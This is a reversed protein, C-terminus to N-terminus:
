ADQEAGENQESFKESLRKMFAVVATLIEKAESQSYSRVIHMTPNRWVIKVIQLDGAVERFYAEDQKWDITKTKHKETIQREIQTLYSEWSPAYPIELAYAFVKLGHEMIRMLHFVTATGQDYALCKGASELEEIASPFSAFLADDLSEWPELYQAYESSIRMVLSEMNAVIVRRLVDFDEGHKKYTYGPKKSDKLMESAMEAATELSIERCRDGLRKFNLHAKRQAVAPMPKADASTMKEAFRTLTEILDLWRPTDFEQMIDWLSGHGYPIPRCPQSPRPALESM